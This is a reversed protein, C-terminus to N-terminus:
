LKGQNQLMKMYLGLIPLVFAMLTFLIVILNNSEKLFRDKIIEKYRDKFIFLFYFSIVLLILIGLSIYLVYNEFKASLYPLLVSTIFFVGFLYLMLVFILLLMASFIAIDPNGVRIQFTYYKFYLYKLFKM